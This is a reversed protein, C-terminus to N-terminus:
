VYIFVCAYKQKLMSQLFFFSMKQTFNSFSKELLWAETSLHIFKSKQIQMSFSLMLYLSVYTAFLM